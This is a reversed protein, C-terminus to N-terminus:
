AALEWRVCCSGWNVGCFRSYLKWAPSVLLRWGGSILDVSESLQLALRSRRSFIPAAGFGSDVLVPIKRKAGAVVEPLSEITGRGSEEARGGHNSVIIGDVGYRVALEADERTVIGKLLLTHPWLQRLRQLTQWTFAQPIPSRVRSTDIGKFMPKRQLSNREPGEPGHCSACDRKDARKARAATERNSGGNLDVTVAIVKVGAARVRELLAATVAWEDTAYLQYWVGSGGHAEIVQEISYSSLTSLIQLHGVSQAARAAALEGENHFARQSSVPSLFIPSDWTTGFLTVRTDLASVDVLRRVRLSYKSFGARNALLTQEGDVGTALYGWHAPPLKQQASREFDFVDLAQDVSAIVEEDRAQGLALHPWAADVGALVPSALLYRLFTRRARQEETRLPAGVLNSSSADPVSM